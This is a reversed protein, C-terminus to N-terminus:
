IGIYGTTKRLIALVEPAQESFLKGIGAELEEGLPSHIKRLMYSLVEVLRFLNMVGKPSASKSPISKVQGRLYWHYDFLVHGHACANRLDRLAKLCSVFEGLHTLAYYRAIRRKLDPSHLAEYLTIVEGFTMFELTKWAPAYQQKRHKKHHHWIVEQKNKIRTYVKAEFSRAYSPLVYRGDCFWCPSEAYANSGEYILKTRFNLEIRLLGGNLLVRLRQDFHYLGLITDLCTGAPYRHIGSGPNQEFPYCYFGLRYYGIDLLVSRAKEENLTMGREQLLAIQEEITTAKAGM